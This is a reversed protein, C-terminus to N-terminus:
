SDEEKMHKLYSIVYRINKNLITTIALYALYFLYIRGRIDAKGEFRTENFYPTLQFDNLYLPYVAAYVAMVNGTLSPDDFGLELHGSLKKPLVHGLIKKLRDLLFGVAEHVQVDTAFAVWKQILNIIHFVKDFIAARITELQGVLGFLRFIISFVKWIITGALLLLRVFLEMIKYSNVLTFNLIRAPIDKIFSILQNGLVKIVDRPKAKVEPEKPPEEAPEPEAGATEGQDEPPISETEETVDSKGAAESEETVDDTELASEEAPTEAGAPSADGIEPVAATEPPTEAPGPAATDESTKAGGKKKGLLAFLSVGFIKVDKIMKFGTESRIDAGVTVQIMKLLWSVTATGGGGSGEKDIAIQYRFPVFLVLLIIILLLLLLILLIKGILKLIFFLIGM